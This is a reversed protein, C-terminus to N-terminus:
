LRALNRHHALVEHSATLTLSATLSLNVTSFYSKKNMLSPNNKEIYKRCVISLPFYFKCDGTVKFSIYRPSFLFFFAVFVM